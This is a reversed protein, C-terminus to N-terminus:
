RDPALLHPQFTHTLAASLSLHGTALQHSQWAYGIVQTRLSTLCTHLTSARADICVLLADIRMRLRETENAICITTPPNKRALRFRACATATTPLRHYYPFIRARRTSKRASHPKRFPLPTPSLRPPRYPPLKFNTPLPTQLLVM